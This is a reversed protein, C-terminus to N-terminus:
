FQRLEGISTIYSENATTGGVGTPLQTNADDGNFGPASNASGGASETLLILDLTGNGSGVENGSMTYFSADTILGASAPSVAALGVILIVVCSRRGCWLRHFM